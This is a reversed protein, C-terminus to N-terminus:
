RVGEGRCTIGDGPEFSDCKKMVSSMMMVVIKATSNIILMKAFLDAHKHTLFALAVAPTNTNTNITEM